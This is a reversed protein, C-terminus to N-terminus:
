QVIDVVVTAFTGDVVLLAMTMHELSDFSLNAPHPLRRRFILQFTKWDVSRRQGGDTIVADSTV